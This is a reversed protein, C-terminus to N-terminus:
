FTRGSGLLELRLVMAKVRLGKFVIGSELQLLLYHTYTTGSNAEFLQTNYKLGHGMGVIM